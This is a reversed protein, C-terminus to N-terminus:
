RSDPVPLVATRTLTRLLEDAVIQDRDEVGMVLLANTAIAEAYLRGLAPILEVDNIQDHPVVSVLLRLNRIRCRVVAPIGDHKACPALHLDDANQSRLTYMVGQLLRSRFSDM